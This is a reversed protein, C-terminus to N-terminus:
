KSQEKLIEKVCKLFEDMQAKTGITVRNYEKLREKNFHRVLVGRKKLEEYLKLGSIGDNKTFVFNTNSDLVEFGLKQLEATTYARTKCIEQVKSQFYEEECLAAYGAALTMRNVNYPNTSYRLTNLDAILTESGIAVGL